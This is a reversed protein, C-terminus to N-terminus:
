IATKTEKKHIVRRAPNKWLQTYHLTSSTSESLLNFKM